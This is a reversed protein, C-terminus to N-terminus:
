KSSIVNEQGQSKTIRFGLHGGHLAKKCMIKVLQTILLLVVTVIFLAFPSKDEIFALDFNLPTVRTFTHTSNTLAASYALNDFNYEFHGVAAMKLKSELYATHLVIFSVDSILEKGGLIGSGLDLAAIHALVSLICNDVQSVATM